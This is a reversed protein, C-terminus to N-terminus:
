ANAQRRYLVIMVIARVLCVFGMAPYLLFTLTSVRITLDANPGLVFFPTMIAVVLLAWFAAYAGLAASRNIEQDREDVVVAGETRRGIRGEAALLALLAFIAQGVPDFGVIAVFIGYLAFTIGVVKVVFWARREQVCM